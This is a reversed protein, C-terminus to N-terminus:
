AALSARIAALGPRAEPDPALCADVLAALRAPFRPRRARLPEPRAELVPHELAEHAAFPNEGTAAEHLVTGLGWVDAAPGVADGREQEPSRNCWTGTEAPVSGPARAISLDIVRARGAEVVVNAPKLDLHLIGEAHLYSLVSALQRGLESLEAPSLRRQEILRALTRGALTELVVVPRGEGHVEYARVLHPHALRVLRAGERLLAMRAAEDGLRDPRLAKAVVPCARVDCWAEYVDLVRSRHLHAVVFVGPALERGRGFPRM